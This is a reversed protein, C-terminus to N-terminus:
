SGSGYARLSVFMGVAQGAFPPVAVDIWVNAEEDAELTGVILDEDEHGVMAEEDPATEGTGILIYENLPFANVIRIQVAVDEIASSGVNKLVVQRMAGHKVSYQEGPGTSLLKIPGLPTVGDSDFWTLM